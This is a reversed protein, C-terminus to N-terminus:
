NPWEARDDAPGVMHLLQRSAEAPIEDEGYPALAETLEHGRQADMRIFRLRSGLLLLEQQIVMGDERVWVRSRPDSMLGSGSKAISWWGTTRNNQREMHSSTREVRAVLIEIKAPKLVSQSACVTWDLYLGPLYGQPSIGDGVLADGSLSFSDPIEGAPSHLKMQDGDVTGHIRVPNANGAMRMSSEFSTIRGLGDVDLQGRM